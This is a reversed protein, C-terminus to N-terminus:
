ELGMVVALSGGALALWLTTAMVLARWGVARIAAMSLGAGILFLAGQFGLKAVFRIETSYAAVTPVFTALVSAGVFLIVLWPVPLKSKKTQTTTSENANQSANQSVNLRAFWWRAVIAIPVIWIVRSLKVVMAHEQVIATGAADGPMYASAAGSVSSVDHLAMGAWAGFQEPTLALTHGILPLTYLGAANLLFIAGTAIAMGGSSAGIASGVAAIASGGCIATGSCVLTTQERHVKLLRALIFGLTFTAVITGLALVFGERVVEVLRVLPILLGLTAVCWQILQKSILNSEKVFPAIGLLALGCGVALAIAPSCWPTM